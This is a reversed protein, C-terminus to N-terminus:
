VCWHAGKVSIQSKITVCACMVCLVGNCLLPITVASSPRRSNELTFVSIAM